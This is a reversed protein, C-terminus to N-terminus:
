MDGEFQMRTYNLYKIVSVVVKVIQVTFELLWSLHFAYLIDLLVYFKSLIHDFNHLGSCINIITSIAAFIQLACM